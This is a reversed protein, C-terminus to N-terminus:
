KFPRPSGSWRPAEPLQESGSSRRRRGTEDLNMKKLATLIKYPATLLANITPHDLYPNRTRFKTRAVAPRPRPDGVRTTTSRDGMWGDGAQTWAWVYNGSPASGSGPQHRGNVRRESNAEHSCGWKAACFDSVLERMEVDSMPLLSIGFEPWQKVHVDCIRRARVPGPKELVPPKITKKKPSPRPCRASDFIFSIATQSASRGIDASALRIHSQASRLFTAARLLSDRQRTRNSRRWLGRTSKTRALFTGIEDLTEETIELCAREPNWFSPPEIHQWDRGIYEMFAKAKPTGLADLAELVRDVDASAVVEGKEIRSVRSQDLGSKEALVAQTVNAEARLRAIATGIKQTSTYESM